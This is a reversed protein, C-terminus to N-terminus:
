GLATKLIDRIDRKIITEFGLQELHIREAENDVLHCCDAVLDELTTFKICSKIDEEEVSTNEELISVVAKKNALLYSVRVIEFQQAPYASANLVVKARAIFSDRSEGYFGCAFVTSLGANAVKEFVRSRKEAPLGYILVDIDQYAPKEIRTLIPAYGIPIYKINRKDKVTAWVALNEQKYDWVEFHKAYFLMEERLCDGTLEKMQETNYIITDDPFNQMFDIPLIQAGFIINRCGLEYSNIAHSVEYGLQELGWKMTEIFEDVGKLKHRHPPIVQMFHFKKM